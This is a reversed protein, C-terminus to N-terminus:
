GHGSIVTEGSEADVGARFTPDEKTFRNLAKSLNQESKSDIPKISLSIVPDPVHISTM